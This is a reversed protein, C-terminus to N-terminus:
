QLIDDETRDYDQLLQERKEKALVKLDDERIFIDYMEKGKRLVQLKDAAMIPHFIDNIFPNSFPDMEM